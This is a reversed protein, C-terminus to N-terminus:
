RSRRAQIVFKENWEDYSIHLENPHCCVKCDEIYTQDRGRSPDVFAHNIEGCYTCRYSQSSAQEPKQERM